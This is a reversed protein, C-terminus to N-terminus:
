PLQDTHVQLALATRNDVLVKGSRDLIEGRPAQVTVQRVRNNQAEALYKDGSLVQLYWLRFFILGFLLLAFIGLIKIRRSLQTNTVQREGWKGGSFTM